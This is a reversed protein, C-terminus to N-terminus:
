ALAYINQVFIVINTPLYIFKERIKKMNPVCVTMNPVFVTMNCIVNYKLVLIPINQAYVFIIPSICDYEPCLCDNM